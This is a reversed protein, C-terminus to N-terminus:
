PYNRSIREAIGELSEAMSWMENNDRRSVVLSRTVNRGALIAIALRILAAEFRRRLLGKRPIM